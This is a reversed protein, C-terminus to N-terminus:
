LQPELIGNDSLGPLDKLGPLALCPVVLTAKPSPPRLCRPSSSYRGARLDGDFPSPILPPPLAGHSCQVTAQFLYCIIEDIKVIHPCSLLAFEARFARRWEFYDVPAKREKKRAGSRGNRNHKGDIKVISRRKEKKPTTTGAAASIATVVPASVFASKLPSKPEHSANNNANSVTSDSAGTSSDSIGINAQSNGRGERGGRRAPM